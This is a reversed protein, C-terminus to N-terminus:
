FRAEESAHGSLTLTMVIADEGDSYYRARMGMAEFGHGHYLAQAAHNGRRVELTIYRCDHGRAVAILHRMLRTGIGRRRHEPHAALNLLHLEDHVLWYSAFGVVPGAGAGDTLPRPALQVLRVLDIHAWDRGLDELFLQPPWPTPSSRNEIEVVADIDAAVMPVIALDDMRKM